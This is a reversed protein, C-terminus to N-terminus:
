APSEAQLRYLTGFRKRFDASNKRLALWDDFIDPTQLWVTIWEVIEANEGGRDINKSASIKGGLAVRRALMMGKEDNKDRFNRFLSDLRRISEEAEKLGSLDLVDELAHEYKEDSTAMGFVEELKVPLGEDVLIRAVEAPELAGGEGFEAVLREIIFAIEDASVEGMAERDYVDIIVDRRSKRNM